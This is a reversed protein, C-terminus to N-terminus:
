WTYYRIPPYAKWVAMALPTGVLIGAVNQLINGPIETAAAAFGVMLGGTLFYIGGMVLTGLVFALLLSVIGPKRPVPTSAKHQKSPAHLKRGTNIVLGIALGQLGHALFTFPAWQAYGALLDALATGVGGTILATIPGFIIATFFIAVDGFNIYGRTPAIPIRIVYTFLATVAILIALTAIRFAPLQMFSENKETEM